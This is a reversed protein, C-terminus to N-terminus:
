SKIKQHYFSVAKWNNRNEREEKLIVKNELKEEAKWCNKDCIQLMWSRADGVDPVNGVRKIFKTDELKSNSCLGLYNVSGETDFLLWPEVSNDDCIKGWDSSVVENLNSEVGMLWNWQKKFLATYKDEEQISVVAGNGLSWCIKNHVNNDFNIKEWNGAAMNDCKQLSTQKTMVYAGRGNIAIPVSVACIGGAVGLCSIVTKGSVFM